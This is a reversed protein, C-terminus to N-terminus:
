HEALVRDIAARAECIAVALREVAAAVEGPTPAEEVARSAEAVAWAGVGFASGKLTHAFAAAEAPPSSRMRALLMGAQRDFLALVEAELRPEGLTMRRLHAVDIACQRGSQPRADGLNGNKGIGAEIM